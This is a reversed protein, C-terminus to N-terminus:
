PAVRGAKPLQLGLQAPSRLSTARAVWHRGAKRAPRAANDHGWGGGKVGAASSHSQSLSRAQLIPCMLREGERVLSPEQSSFCVNASPQCHTAQQSSLGRPGWQTGVQLVLLVGQGPWAMVPLIFELPTPVPTRLEWSVPALQTPSKKLSSHSQNAYGSSGFQKAFCTQKKILM